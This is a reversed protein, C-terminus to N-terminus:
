PDADWRDALDEFGGREFARDAHWVQVDFQCTSLPLHQVHKMTRLVGQAVLLKRRQDPRLGIARM